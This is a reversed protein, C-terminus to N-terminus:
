TLRQKVPNQILNITIIELKRDTMMEQRRYDNRFMCLFPSSSGLNLINCFTFDLMSRKTTHLFLPLAIHDQTLMDTDM